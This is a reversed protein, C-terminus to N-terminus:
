PQPRVPLREGPRLDQGGQRGREDVLLQLEHGRDRHQLLVQGADARAVRVQLAVEVACRAAKSVAQRLPPRTGLSLTPGLRPTSTAPPVGNAM